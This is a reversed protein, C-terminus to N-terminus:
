AALSPARSPLAARVLFHWTRAVEPPAAIRDTVGTPTPTLTITPLPAVLCLLCSCLAPPPLVATNAALKFTGSELLDCADRSAGDDHEDAGHGDACHFLPGLGAAELDCHLTAPLWLALLALSFIRRLRLLACLLHPGRPNDLHGHILSRRM